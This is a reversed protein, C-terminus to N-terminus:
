VAGMRASPYARQAEECSPTGQAGQACPHCVAHGAAHMLFRRVCCGHLLFCVCSVLGDGRVLAGAAPWGAGGDSGGWCRTPKRILHTGLRLTKCRVVREGVAVCLCAGTTPPPSCSCPPWRTAGTRTTARPPWCCSRGSARRPPCCWTGGRRPLPVGCPPLRHSAFPCLALLLGLRRCRTCRCMSRTLQSMTHM